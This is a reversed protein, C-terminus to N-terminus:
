DDEQGEILEHNEDIMGDAQLTKMMYEIHHTDGDMLRMIWNAYQRLSDNLDDVTDANCTCGCEGATILVLCDEMHECSTNNM